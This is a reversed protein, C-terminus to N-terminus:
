KVIIKQNGKTSNGTFHHNQPFPRAQGLVETGQGREEQNGWTLNRKFRIFQSAPQEMRKRLHLGHDRLTPDANYIGKLKMKHLHM